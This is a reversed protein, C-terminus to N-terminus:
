DMSVTFRILTEKEEQRAREVSLKAQENVTNIRAARGDMYLDLQDLTWDIWDYGVGSKGMTYAIDAVREDPTTTGDDGGSQRIAIGRAAKVYAAEAGSLVRGGIIIPEDQPTTLTAADMM